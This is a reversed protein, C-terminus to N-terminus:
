SKQQLSSAPYVASVLYDLPSRSHFFVLVKPKISLLVNHGGLDMKLCHVLTLLHLCLAAPCAQQLTCWYRIGGRIRLWVCYVTCYTPFFNSNNLLSCLTVHDNMHTAPLVTSQRTAMTPQWIRMFPGWISRHPFLSYCGWLLFLFLLPFLFLLHSFLAHLFHRLGTSTLVLALM